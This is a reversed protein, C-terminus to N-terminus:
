ERISRSRLWQFQWVDVTGSRLPFAGVERSGTKLVAGGVRNERRLYTFGLSRMYLARYLYTSVGFEPFVYQRGLGQSPYLKM